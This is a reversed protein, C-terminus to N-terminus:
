ERAVVVFRQGIYDLVRARADVDLSNLTAAISVIASIEPDQQVKFEALKTQFREKTAPTIAKSKGLRPGSIRKPPREQEEVEDLRGEMAADTLAAEKFRRRTPTDAYCVCCLDYPYLKVPKGKNKKMCNDNACIGMKTSKVATM